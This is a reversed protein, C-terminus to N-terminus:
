LADCITIHKSTDEAGLDFRAIGARSTSSLATINNSVPISLPLIWIDSFITPRGKRQCTVECRSHEEVFWKCVQMNTPNLSGEHAVKSDERKPSQKQSVWTGPHPFATALHALRIAM